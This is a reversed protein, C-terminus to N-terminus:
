PEYVRVRYFKLPANTAHDEVVGPHNKPSFIPRNGPVDLPQWAGPTLLNTSWQVEFGRNAIRPFLIQVANEARRLDIRWGEGPQVPDRDTLYELYNV